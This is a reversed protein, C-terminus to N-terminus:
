YERLYLSMQANYRQKTLERVYELGANPNEKKTAMYVEVLSPKKRQDHRPKGKRIKKRQRAM